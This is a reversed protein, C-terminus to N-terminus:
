RCSNSNWRNQWIQRRQWRRREIKNWGFLMEVVVLYVRTNFDFQGELEHIVARLVGNDHYYQEPHQGIVKHVKPNGRGDTEVRFTTPHGHATLQEAYFGQIFQIERKIKTVVEERFTTDNPAFYILGVTRPIDENGGDLFRSYRRTDPVDDIPFCEFAESGSVVCLSVIYPVVLWIAKM